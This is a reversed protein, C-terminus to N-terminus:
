DVIIKLAEKLRASTGKVGVPIRRLAERAQKLSYGLKMLGDIVEGDQDQDISTQDIKDIKDKMEVIIREATKKGIGSIKNLAGEDGALIARKLDSLKIVSLINMASKPGINPIQNLKKFFMLEEESLFGYLQAVEEYFYLHTFIKISLGLKAQSLLFDNVFIQYGLGGRNLILYNEGKQVVQGELFYIM